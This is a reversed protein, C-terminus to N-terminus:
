SSNGIGAIHELQSVKSAETPSSAGLRASVQLALPLWPAPPLFFSFSLSECSYSWNCPCSVCPLLMCKWLTVYIAVPSTFECRDVVEPHLVFLIGLVIRHRFFSLSCSECRTKRTSERLCESNEYSEMRSAHESLRECRHRNKPVYM